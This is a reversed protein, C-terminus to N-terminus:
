VNHYRPSLYQKPIAKERFYDFSRMYNKQSHLSIENFERRSKKKGGKEFLIIIVHMPLVLLVIPFFQGFGLHDTAAQFKSQGM